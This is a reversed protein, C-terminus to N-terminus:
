NRELPQPLGIAGCNRKDPIPPTHEAVDIKHVLVLLVFGASGTLPCFSRRLHAATSLEARRQQETIASPSLM